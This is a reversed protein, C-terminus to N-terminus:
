ASPLQGQLVDALAVLDLQTFLRDGGALRVLPCRGLLRSLDSGTGDVPERDRDDRWTVLDIAVLRDVAFAVSGHLAPVILLCAATRPQVPRRGLVSALCVVPVVAGRNLIGGLVGLDGPEAPLEPPYPLVEAVQELPSALVVEVAYTLQARDAGDSTDGCGCTACSPDHTPAGDDPSM